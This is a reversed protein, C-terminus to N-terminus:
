HCSNFECALTKNRTVFSGDSCKFTSTPCDLTETDCIWACQDIPELYKWNGVCMSKITDFNKIECCKDSLEVSGCSEETYRCEWLICNIGTSSPLIFILQSSAALAILVVALFIYKKMIM